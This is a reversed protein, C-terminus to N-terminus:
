AHRVREPAPSKLADERIAAIEEDPLGLLHGIRWILDEEFEHLYGDIAAIRYAMALLLPREEPPVDQFIRNVLAAAEDAEGGAAEVHELIRATAEQTLGFRSRLMASLGREEVDLVRGDIRAVLVLLAAVTIRQGDDPAADPAIAELFFDRLRALASM